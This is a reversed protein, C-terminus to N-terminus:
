AGSNVPDDPAVNLNRFKLEPVSPAGRDYRTQSRNASKRCRQVTAGRAMVPAIMPVEHPETGAAGSRSFSAASVLILRAPLATPTM